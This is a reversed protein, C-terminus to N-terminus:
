TEHKSCEEGDPLIDCLLCDIVIKKLSIAEETM